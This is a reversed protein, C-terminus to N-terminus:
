PGAMEHVLHATTVYEDRPSLHLPFCKNSRFSLNYFRRNDQEKREMSICAKSSRTLKIKGCSPKLMPSTPASALVEMSSIAFSVMAHPLHLALHVGKRRRPSPIPGLVAKGNCTIGIVLINLRVVRVPQIQAPM